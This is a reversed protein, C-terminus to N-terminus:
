AAARVIMGFEALLNHAEMEGKETLRQLSPKIQSGYHRKLTPISLDHDAWVDWRGRIKDLMGAWNTVAWRAFKVDDDYGVHGAAVMVAWLLREAEAKNKPSLSYRVILVAWLHPPLRDNLFALTMCDQQFRELKNLDSNHRAPPEERYGAAALAQWGAPKYLSRADVNLAAKIASLADIYPATM